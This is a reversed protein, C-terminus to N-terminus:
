TEGTIERCLQALAALRNIWGRLYKRLSARDQCIAAYHEMRKVLLSPWYGGAWTQARGAGVNVATDFMAVDLGDQLEDCGCRDWYDRRYIAAAQEFTPPGHKWAEPHARESIGYITRGGPDDPDNSYGGEYRLTFELARKFNARM